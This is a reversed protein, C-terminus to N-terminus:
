AYLSKFISITARATNQWSFRKINELGALILKERFHTDLLIKKIAEFMDSTKWPDVLVASQGMIEPLSTRDAVIVPCGCAQAELPPFGFGEFFSPYVFVRAFSYLRIKEEHSVPGWFIIDQKYFSHSAEKLMSDYLWGRRGALILKFDKFASESKLVNFAKILALVNKRPELTGLYLIYPNPLPSQQGVIPRFDETIGSYVVKIKEPPVGLTNILDNKTFESVAIIKEAVKAQKKINQLWHWFRQRWSFFDPHHLFSLDHFTIVRPATRGALINFHPSFVIDAKFRAGLDPWGLFRSSFDFIKNPIRWNIVRSSGISVQSNLLRKKFGNYFFWYENEKDAALLSNFLNRTYGEIGSVEGRALLRADALIKM